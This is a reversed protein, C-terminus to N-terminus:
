SVTPSDWEADAEAAVLVARFVRLLEGTASRILDWDLLEEKGRHTVNSRLHYLYEIQKVPQADLDFSKRDAPRGTSAVTRLNRAAAPSTASLADVFASEEALRKVKEVLRDKGLGYRLSVYREISSWLLMYAAQLRYFPRFDNWDFEQGLAEEVVELAASFAPDRWGSWAESYLPRTGNRPKVAALVNMGNGCTWKYQASPEMKSIAEYAAIEAGAKFRIRHGDAIEGSQNRDLVVLGDRIRLTGSVSVEEVDRVFEKIQFFAIEGPKFIGYAFFPLSPDLGSLTGDSALDSTSVTQSDCRVRNEM